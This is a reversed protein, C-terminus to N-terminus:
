LLHTNRETRLLIIFHFKYYYYYRNKAEDKNEENKTTSFFFISFFFQLIFSVCVGKIRPFSRLCNKREIRNIKSMWRTGTMRIMLCSVYVNSTFWYNFTLFDRKSSSSSSLVWNSGLFTLYNDDNKHTQIYIYIHVHIHIYTDYLFLIVKKM